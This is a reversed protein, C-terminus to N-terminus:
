EARLIKKLFDWRNRGLAGVMAANAESIVPSMLLKKVVRIECLEYLTLIQFLTAEKPSAFFVDVERGKYRKKHFELGSFNYVHGLHEYSHGMLWETFRSHPFNGNSRVGSFPSFGMGVVEKGEKQFKEVAEMVVYDLLGPLQREGQEPHAYSYPVDRLIDASYGIVKGGRYMPDFVVFGVLEGKPDRAFFHRVDEEDCEPHPRALFRIEGDNSTKSAIWAKSVRGISEMGIEAITSEAVQIGARRAHNRTTRLTQRSKGGFSYGDLDLMTEIGFKNVYFGRGALAEATENRFVQCFCSRPYKDTFASVIDGIEGPPCVPDGLVFKDEPFFPAFRAGRFAIYGNGHVFYEMGEQLTSFAIPHSGYQRLASRVKGMDKCEMKDM